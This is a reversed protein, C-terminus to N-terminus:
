NSSMSSCVRNSSMSMFAGPCPRVLRASQRGVTQLLGPSMHAHMRLARQKSSSSVHASHAGVGEQGLISLMSVARSMHMVLTCHSKPDFSATRNLATCTWSHLQCMFAPVAAATPLAPLATPCCPQQAPPTQPVSPSPMRGVTGPLRPPHWHCCAVAPVEFKAPTRQAARCKHSQHQLMSGCQEHQRAITHVNTLYM